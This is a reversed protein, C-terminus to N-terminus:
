KVRTSPSRLRRAPSAVPPRNRGDKRMQVVATQYPQLIRSRMQLTRCRQIRVTARHPLSRRRVPFAPRLTQAHQRIRKRRSRIPANRLKRAPTPRLRPRRTPRHERIHKRVLCMMSPLNQHQRVLYPIPHKVCCRAHPMPLLKPLLRCKRRPRPSLHRNQACNLPRSAIQLLGKTILHGVSFM